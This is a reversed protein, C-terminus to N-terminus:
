KKGNTRVTRLSSRKKYLRFIHREKCSDLTVNEFRPSPFVRIASRTAAWVFHLDRNRSERRRLDSTGRRSDHSTVPPDCVDDADIVLHIAPHVLQRTPAIELRRAMPRHFRGADFPRSDPPPPRSPFPSLGEPSPSVATGISRTGCGYTWVPGSSEPMRGTAKRRRNPRGVDTASDRGYEVRGSKERGTRRKSGDAEEIERRYSQRGSRQRDARRTRSVDTRRTPLTKEGDRRLNGHFRFDNIYVHIHYEM